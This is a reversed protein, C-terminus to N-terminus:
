GVSPPPRATPRGALDRWGPPLVQRGSFAEGDELVLQGFRGVDRLRASVGFGGWDQGGEAELVWYGNAVMGAPGWITEACYEALPRGTAAVVDIIKAFTQRGIPWSTISSSASTIDIVEIHSRSTGAPTTRM